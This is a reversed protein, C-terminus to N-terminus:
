AGTMPLGVGPRIGPFTPAFCPKVATNPDASDGQYQPVASTRNGHGFQSHFNQMVQQSKLPSKTSSQDYSHQTKFLPLLAPSLQWTKVLVTRATSHFLLTKTQMALSATFTKCKYRSHNSRPKQYLKSWLFTGATSPMFEPKSFVFSMDRSIGPGLAVYSQHM